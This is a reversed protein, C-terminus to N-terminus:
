KRRRHTALAALALISLTATTPEPILGTVTLSGNEYVLTTNEGIMSGTFYQNANFEYSGTGTYQLDAGLKLTGINSFLAVSSDEMLPGDLTLVLNIKNDGLMSLALSGGDMDIHVQNLTLTSSSEQTLENAEILAGVTSNLVTYEATAAFQVDEMAFTTANMIQSVSLEAGSFIFVKYAEITADEAQLANGKTINLNGDGMYTEQPKICQVTANKVLLTAGANEKM